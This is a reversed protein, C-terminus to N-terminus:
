FHFLILRYIYIIATYTYTIHIYTHHTHSHTHPSFRGSWTMNNAGITVLWRQQGSRGGTVM